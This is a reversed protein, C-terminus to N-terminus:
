GGPADAYEGPTVGLMSRFDNIFHADFPFTIM